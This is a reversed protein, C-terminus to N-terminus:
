RHTAVFDTIQALPPSWGDTGDVILTPVDLDLQYVAVDKTGSEM